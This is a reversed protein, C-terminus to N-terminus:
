RYRSYALVAAVAATLSALPYLVDRLFNSDSRRAVLVQDGSAIPLREYRSYNRALDIVMASDRRIVHVRDLRGLETPGGAQAIAQAFTTGQPLRYLNPQRVEGAVTVAFLPEIAFEVGQEYTALLARLREKVVPLPVGAAQVRQYLPHVVTSDPAILFDGSLEPHRWVSLRLMDGPRLVPDSGAAQAAASAVPALLLAAVAWSSPNM